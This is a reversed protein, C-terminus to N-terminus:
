SLTSIVSGKNGGFVTAPIALINNSLLDSPDVEIYYLYGGNFDPLDLQKIANLYLKELENKIVFPRKKYVNLAQYALVLSEKNTKLKIYKSRIVENDEKCIFSLGFVNPLCWSKSLSFLLTTQGFHYLDLMNLLETQDTLYAGDIILRRNKNESLWSKILDFDTKNLKNGSPKLPYNILLVNGEPLNHFINTTLTKYELYDLKKSTLCKQYFPYFDQPIIWKEDSYTETLIELSDRVGSSVGIYKKYDHSINHINLWDEVLHCRHINGNVHGKVSSCDTTFYFYQYLNNESLNIVNPNQELINKKYSLFEKYNM